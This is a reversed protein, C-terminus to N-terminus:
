LSEDEELMTEDFMRFKRPELSNDLQSTGFEGAAFPDEDYVYNTHSIYNQLYVEAKTNGFPLWYGALDPESPCENKNSEHFRALVSYVPIEYGAQVKLEIWPGSEWAEDALGGDGEDGDYRAQYDALAARHAKAAAELNDM